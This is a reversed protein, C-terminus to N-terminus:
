LSYCWSQSNKNKIEFTCESNLDGPFGQDLNKSLLQYIIKNKSHHNIKWELRDFGKKGGHLTNKGENGSLKYIKNKINFKSNSIRGAYRGCTAGVYLNKSSYNKTPGLNLILNIKKQKDYVEYLCAGINISKVRLYKNEITSSQVKM